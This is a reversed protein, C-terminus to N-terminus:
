NAVNQDDLTTHAAHPLVVDLNPFRDMVGSLALHAAAITTDFPNGLLNPLFYEKLRDTM